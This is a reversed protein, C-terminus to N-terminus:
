KKSGQVSQTLTGGTTTVFCLINRDSDQEWSRASPLLYTFYLTSDLYDIGVYSRFRQACSGQAFTTLVDNGPYSSPTKGDTGVFGITAYAEQTHPKTCPTRSLKSLEAKVDKPAQFCQGSKVSFVSVSTTDSKSGGFWSCGSLTLVAALM